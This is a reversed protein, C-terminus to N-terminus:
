GLEKAKKAIEEAKKHYYEHKGEGMVELEIREFGDLLMKREEDSLLADCEKFFRNEKIIHKVLLEWYGHAGKLVEDKKGNKMMRVFARGQEHEKLLVSVMNKDKVPKKQLLPFLVNEEKGHHCKDAFNMIVDLIDEMIKPPLAGGAEMRVTFKKLADIVELIVKHEELLDKYWDM